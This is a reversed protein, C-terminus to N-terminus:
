GHTSHKSKHARSCDIVNMPIKGCELRDEVLNTSCLYILYDDSTIYYRPRHWAFCEPSQELQINGQMEDMAIAVSLHKCRPCALLCIGNRLPKSLGHAPIRLLQKRFM